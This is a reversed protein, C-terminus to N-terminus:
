LVGKKELKKKIWLLEEYSFFNFSLGPLIGMSIGDGCSLALGYSTWLFGMAMLSFLGGMGSLWDTYSFAVYETWHDVELKPEIRLLLSNDELTINVIGVFYATSKTSQSWTIDFNSLQDNTRYKHFVTEQYGIMFVDVMSDEEKNYNLVLPIGAPDEDRSIRLTVDGVKVNAIMQIRGLDISLAIFWGKGPSPEDLKLRLNVHVGFDEGELPVEGSAQFPVATVNAYEWSLDDYMFMAREHFWDQSKLLQDLLHTINLSIKNINEFIIFFNIHIYPVQYPEVQDSSGYNISYDKKEPKFDSQMNAMARSLTLNGYWLYVIVCGFLLILQFRAYTKSKVIAVLAALYGIGFHDADAFSETIQSYIQLDSQTCSLLSPSHTNNQESKIEENVHSMTTNALENELFSIRESLKLINSNVNGRWSRWNAQDFAADLNSDLASDQTM